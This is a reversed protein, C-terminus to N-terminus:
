WCRLPKLRQYLTIASISANLIKALQIANKASLKIVLRKM